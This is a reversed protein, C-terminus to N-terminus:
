SAKLYLVAGATGIKELFRNLWRSVVSKDLLIIRDDIQSMLSNLVLTSRDYGGPKNRLLWLRKNEELYQKGSEQMAKLMSKQDSISMNGRFDIYSQLGAGFKVLRIANLYEDRIVLSDSTGIKAKNLKAEEADMFKQLGAYYFSHRNEYQENFITVMEPALDKMLDTIGGIVKEFIASILVKDRLGFQLSMQTTTMNFMPFEEYRNYRGLDLVLDGM